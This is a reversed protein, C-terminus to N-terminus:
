EKKMGMEKEEMQKEEMQKETKMEEGEGEKEMWERVVGRYDEPGYPSTMESFWGGKRRSRVGLDGLMLDVYPIGDFVFDPIQGGWGHPYRWKGFRNHLRAQYPVDSAARSSPNSLPAIRGDFYATVWLGQMQAMIATSVTLLHGVFAIDRTALYTAKAPVMFRYLDLPTLAENLGAQDDTSALPTLKPNGRPQNKLRPYRSLIEADARSTLSDCAAQLHPPRSDRVAPLGLESELSAPIFKLPSAHKWGTACVMADTHITNGNSLVVKGNDLKEIDAIHVTAQGSKVLDFFPTPYNLIGLGSATWFPEMWPKLKATEPHADYKMLDVVDAGLIAWFRDVVFRGIATGHLCSRITGYGDAAGWICPSM